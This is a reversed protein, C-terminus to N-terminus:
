SSRRRASERSVCRVIVAHPDAESVSAEADGREKADGVTQGVFVGGGGGCGALTTGDPSWALGFVSGFGDALARVAARRTGGTRDCLYAREFSGVAFVDGPAWACSTTPHDMAPSAHLTRGFADWVRYRCDEGGSVIVDGRPSWDVALVAGDHAKWRITKRGGPDASKVYLDKGCGAAVADCSPSWSVAHIAHQLQELVARLM